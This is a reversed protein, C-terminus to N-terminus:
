NIFSKKGKGTEGDMKNIVKGDTLKLIKSTQIAHTLKLFDMYM